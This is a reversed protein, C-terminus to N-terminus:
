RKLKQFYDIMKQKVFQKEDINLGLFYISFLVSVLSILGVSFFRILTHEILCEAVYPLIAAVVSVLLIPRIVNYIFPKMPLNVLTRLIGLRAFLAIVSIVISVYLTIQPSAGLKLLLYSIPVNLLLLGGVIIQYRKIKGSALAATMLPGSICDIMTGVLVLRCFLTTYEPVIKLWWVLVTNLELIIPLSLIYLLFFSYKAGGFILKFMYEKDGLAYSKIIQPNMAIMMNAAFGNIASNVQYAIGRAANVVPGFFINLLLNIGQTYGVSAMNGWLNWGAYSVLEIYIAKDRCLRYRCEQYKKKSYIVYISIILLTAMLFMIAYLELKDGILWGLMFVIFLKLFVELLSIYAYFSMREHAIIVANFPVQIVILMFSFISCQYVWNAAIIRDPPIVMQANLFWLGITEALIFIIFAILTHVVVSANFVKRLQEYDKRGLEFSFFRQTASMMASNLFSFMMVVGSVVNYIGFDEIGLTNLIIRSTYLTVLMTLFMRIYLMATNKAIRTNKSQIM